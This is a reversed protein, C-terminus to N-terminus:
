YVDLGTLYKFVGKGIVVHFSRTSSGHNHLSFGTDLLWLQLVVMQLVVVHLVVVKGQMKNEALWKFYV